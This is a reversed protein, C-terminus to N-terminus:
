LTATMLIPVSPYERTSSHELARCSNPGIPARARADQQTSPEAINPAYLTPQVAANHKSIPEHTRRCPWRAEARPM